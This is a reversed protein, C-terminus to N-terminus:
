LLKLAEALQTLRYGATDILTMRPHCLDADWPSRILVAVCRSPAKENLLRLMAAQGPFRRAEFCFFVIPGSAPLPPLKGELVPVRLVKKGALLKEPGSPGGEFTFREKVQKFDPFLYTAEEILPLAVSAERVLVARASTARALRLSFGRDPKPTKGRFRYLREIRNWSTQVQRPDFAARAAEVAERQLSEEHAVLLLDHGADLADVAAQAVPMRRTVAGMCLDDSIIVGKFGLRKRLIGNVIKPSFTAPRTKDLASFVVHSTMVCAAKVKFPDLHRKDYKRIVPLDVHADITAAGKGPFHKLCAAVGAQELGDVFAQAMSSVLKPDRGFSRIGIGPNYTKASVDVVPALNIRVGLPALELAMQRGTLYALELSGSRGLALNGPFATLGQSFRLVWGGEHDISFLLPRGTKQVLEAALKKLQKPGEINRALLLVGCAGTDRLLSVARRDARPGALGLM